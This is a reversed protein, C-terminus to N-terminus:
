ETSKKPRQAILNPTANGSCITVFCPLAPNIVNGLPESVPTTSGYAVSIEHVQNDGSTGVYFTLNDTSFTGAVPASAATAGNAPSLQFLTLKGPGSTAPFYVPLIGSSGNYTIFALSSDNSPLINNIATATVGTLPYSSISSTFTPPASAPASPCVTQVPLSVAVDKVAPGIVTAGIMHKGDTTAALRDITVSEPDAVPYFQNSVVPPNAASNITSTPCYSRGDLGVAGGALYAGIHPVTVAVDTYQKGTPLLIQEWNLLSSHVLLQPNGFEDTGTIYVTQADPAWSARTAVGGYTTNVTGSSSVLSIIKKNPDTMVLTGGDPSVSIVPGVLAVNTQGVVNNSTSMTMLGESSGFYITTGSQNIVMSNPVYPLKILSAPQGTTFDRPFVYQSSTSGVYLVTSSAGPAIITLGNSTLPVGNGQFNIQSYPSTNCSPPLCVATITAM